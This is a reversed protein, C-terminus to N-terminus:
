AARARRIRPDLVAYLVDTLFNIVVYGVAIIAVYSQLEVLQRAGIAQYILTGVGPIGFILYKRPVEHPSICQAAGSVRGPAGRIASIVAM